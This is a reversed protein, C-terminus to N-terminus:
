GVGPRRALSALRADKRASGASSGVWYGVVSTAMAGLTGLLVNLVTEAGPPMARLLTMAVVGGFTLLVVVSVVPAGWAIESGSQALAVTTARAGTVDALRAVLAAQSAQAVAEAREFAIRALEVRLAAAKDPDALVAVQTEPEASGTVKAVSDRVAAVVPAANAGFLWQGIEPALTLVVGGMAGLATGLGPVVSGAAAGKAAGEVLGSVIEGADMM